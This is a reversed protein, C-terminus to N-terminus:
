NLHCKKKPEINFYERNLERISDKTRRSNVFDMIFCFLALFYFSVSLFTHFLVETTTSLDLKSGLIIFLSSLVLLIMFGFLETNWKPYHNERYNRILIYEVRKQHTLKRFDEPTIDGIM